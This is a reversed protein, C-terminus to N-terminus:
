YRMKYGRALLTLALASVLLLAVGVMGLSLWPNVDSVGFFGYRFGDIMYFFPNFHTAKQWFSPLSHISYFVGSLFTAPMIIFNQFTALQDFKEAWIGALLGLVGLLASGLLLFVLMWLVHSIGNMDVFWVTCLLVGLGVAVGRVISAGVYATFIQIPRLPTLLLFVMNGMVKSQILSSSANAFANQLVSMMILGPVLFATYTVGSLSPARGSLAHGFILLYLFATMVPAAVTQVGVKWFRRIEKLFLTWTAYM